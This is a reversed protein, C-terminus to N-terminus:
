QYTALDSIELAQEDEAQAQMASEGRSCCAVVCQRSQTAQKVM